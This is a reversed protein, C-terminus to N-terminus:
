NYAGVVNNDRRVELREQENLTVGLQKAISLLLALRTADTIVPATISTNISIHQLKAM